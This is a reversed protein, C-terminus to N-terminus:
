SNVSAFHLANRRALAMITAQPNTGPSDPLMSADNVFLNEYGFIKGYSDAACRERREGMPCSAFAHVTTLSLSSKPLPEDLWRVADLQSDVSSLRQISPYLKKAGAAFLMEGLRAFGQSLNRVDVDSLEYRIVSEMGGSIATRVSGKGTGRAAVYYTAMRRSDEMVRHNESWNDSLVMALHGMSFFSGGLSIDPWFEKVQLLPLVSREADVDEDFLASVKIMPHIQFSDGVHLKIGSRRLLAPTQSPGCALIVFDADIRVLDTSDDRTLEVLVGTVRGKKRLLLKVKAGTLFQAGHSEALPILNRSMGQKAGKPCGSACSNTNQCAKAARPVEHVSWGMQVAGKHFLQSSKPQDDPRTTVNLLGEAWSFHPELEAPTAADLDYRSKWRLCFEPSLRQWLGSNIETSGGMCRGEVYGIPVSGLIPTMGSNRYLLPMAKVPTAGYETLEHRRGEELVLVKFGAEALVTATTAGGAGSGVILVQVKLPQGDDVRAAEAKIAKEEVEISM